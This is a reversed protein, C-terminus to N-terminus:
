LTKCTGGWGAWEAPWQLEVAWGSVKVAWGGVKPFKKLSAALRKRAVKRQADTLPPASPIDVVRPPVYPAAGGGGGGGGLGLGGRSSPRVAPSAPSPEDKVASAALMSKPLM